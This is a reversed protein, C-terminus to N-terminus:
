MRTFLIQNILVNGRVPTFYCVHKVTNFVLTNEFLWAELQKILLATEFEFVNIDRVVM